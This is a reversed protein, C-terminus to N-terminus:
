RGSARSPSGGLSSHAPLRPRSHPSGEPRLAVIAPLVALNRAFNRRNGKGAPARSPLGRLLRSAARGEPRPAQRRSLTSPPASPARARGALWGPTLAPLEPGARPPPPRAKRPGRHDASGDLSGPRGLAGRTPWFQLSVAVESDPKRSGRGGLLRRQAGGGGRGRLAKSDGLSQSGHESSSEKCSSPSGDPQAFGPAGPGGPRPVELSDRAGGAAWLVTSIQSTLAM